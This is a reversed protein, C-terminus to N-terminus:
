MEEYQFTQIWKNFVFDIALDNPHCGDEKYYRYDRLEDTIWEYSPFYRGQLQEQLRHCLELLIAKSRSNEQVGLREHRVPSVTFIIKIKPCHERILNVTSKWEELLGDLDLLERQFDHQPLKQCNGVYADSPLYRWAYATGFTVALIDADQLKRKLELKVKVVNDLVESLNTGNLIRGAMLCKSQEDHQLIMQDWNITSYGLAEKLWDAIALPHFLTGMPNAFVQWGIQNSREAIETSFCSGLFVAKPQSPLPGWHMKAWSKSLSDSM